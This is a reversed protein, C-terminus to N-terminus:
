LKAKLVFVLLKNRHTASTNSGSSKDKDKDRLIKDSATRRPLDKFDGCAMDHQFCAKGLENQYIYGSGGTEKSKQMREDDKTFPGCANHNFRPQRLHMEPLLKDGELLLKHM